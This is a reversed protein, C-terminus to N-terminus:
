GKGTEREQRLMDWISEEPTLEFRGGEWHLDYIERIMTELWLRIADNPERGYRQKLASEVEPWKLTRMCFDILHRAGYVGDPTREYDILDVLKVFERAFLM